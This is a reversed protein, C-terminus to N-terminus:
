LKFILLLVNVVKFLFVLLDRFDIFESILEHKSTTKSTLCLYLEGWQIQSFLYNFIHFNCQIGEIQVLFNHL